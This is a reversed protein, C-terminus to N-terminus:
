VRDVIGILRNDGGIGRIVGHSSDPTSCNPLDPANMSRRAVM